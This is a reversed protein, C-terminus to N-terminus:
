VYLICYPTNLTIIFFVGLCEKFQYFEYIFFGNSHFDQRIQRGSFSAICALSIKTLDDLAYQILELRTTLPMQYGGHCDKGFNDEMIFCDEPLKPLPALIPRPLFTPFRQKFAVAVLYVEGTGVKVAAMRYCPTSTLFDSSRCMLCCLCGIGYKNSVTLANWDCHRVWLGTSMMVHMLDFVRKVLNKAHHPVCANGGISKEKIGIGSKVAVIESSLALTHSDNGIHVEVVMGFIILFVKQVGFKEGESITDFSRICPHIGKSGNEVTEVFSSGTPFPPIQQCEM